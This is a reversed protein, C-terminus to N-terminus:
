VTEARGITLKRQYQGDGGIPRYREVYDRSSTTVANPM